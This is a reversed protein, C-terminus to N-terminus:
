IADRYPDAVGLEALIAIERREMAAADAASEHDYGLLHLTGHVVLHRLHDGLSKQQAAAEGAVTEFALTIAGLMLPAGPPPPIARDHLPFALVNTAADKGRYDRNLRRQAADDSLAIDLVVRSAALAGGVTGALARRATESAIRGPDEGIQRWGDCAVDVEIEIAPSPSATGSM